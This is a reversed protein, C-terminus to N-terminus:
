PAPPFVEPPPPQGGGLFYSVVFGIVLAGMIFTYDCLFRIHMPTDEDWLIPASDVDECSSHESTPSGDKSCEESEAPKPKKEDLQHREMLSEAAKFLIKLGPDSMMFDDLAIVFKVALKLLNSFFEGM